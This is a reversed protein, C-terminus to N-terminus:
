ASPVMLHPRIPLIMSYDRAILEPHQILMEQRGPAPTPGTAACSPLLWASILTTVLVFLNTTRM